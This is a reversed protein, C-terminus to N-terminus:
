LGIRDGFAEDYYSLALASALAISAAWEFDLGTPLGRGLHAYAARWIKCCFESHKEHDYDDCEDRTGMLWPRMGM